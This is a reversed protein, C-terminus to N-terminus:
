WKLGLELEETKNKSKLYAKALKAQTPELNMIRRGKGGSHNPNYAQVVVGPKCMKKFLFFHHKSL